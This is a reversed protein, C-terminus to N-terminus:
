QQKGAADTDVTLYFINSCHLASHLLIQAGQQSILLKPSSLKVEPRIHAVVSLVLVFQFQFLPFLARGAGMMEVTQVQITSSFSTESSLEAHLRRICGQLWYCLLLLSHKIITAIFFKKWHLTIQLLLHPVKM